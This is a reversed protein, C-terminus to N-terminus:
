FDTIKKDVVFLYQGILSSRHSQLVDLVYEIVVAIKRRGKALLTNRHAKHGRVLM